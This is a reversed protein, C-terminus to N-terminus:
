GDTDGIRDGARWVAHPRVGWSWAFAGEHDADWAVLDARAGVEVVGRDRLRLARAGGVTAATLARDVSLGLAAVALCVVLSMDTTGVMGPNHDSGLAITVGHRRLADVDPVRGVALATGPCLVAAVGAAALARADAPTVHLLHDASAAGLEAALWAGGTHALEDAHIRALLGARQAATLVRRAQEVTFYGADCFVDCADAGAAAAAPIWSTVADIHEDATVVDDPPLAHAGLFTVQVDPLGDTARLGDLLAVAGLEGERTLDYGTKAEVTTAGAAVWRRLRDRVATHLADADAARTATVTAGIGTDADSAGYPQGATRAAIEPLRPRTYVPHTHADILGPTVLGGACDIRDEWVLGDVAPDQGSRGIWTIAGDAMAVAAHEVVGRAGCTFLRGIRDLLVGSM